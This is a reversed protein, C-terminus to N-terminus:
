HLLSDTWNTTVTINAPDPDGVVQNLLFRSGDPSVDYSYGSAFAKYGETRLRAEFLKTPLASEFTSGRLIVPVSVLAGSSDLYFL